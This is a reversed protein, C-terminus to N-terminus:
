CNSCFFYVLIKIYFACQALNGEKDKSPAQWVCVTETFNAKEKVLDGYTKENILAEGSTPAALSLLCKLATSKGAGNSGILSVVEGKHVDISVGHLAEISGYSSRVDKIELLPTGGPASKTM